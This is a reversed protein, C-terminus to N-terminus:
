LLIYVNLINFRSIFIYYHEKANVAVVAYDIYFFVHLVYSMLLLACLLLSFVYACM